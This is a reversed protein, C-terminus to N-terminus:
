DCLPIWLLNLELLANIGKFIPMEVKCFLNDRNEDGDSIELSEGHSEHSNHASNSIKIMPNSQNSQNNEERALDHRPLKENM